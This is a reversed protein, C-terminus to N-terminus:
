GNSHESMMKKLLRDFRAGAIQVTDLVFGDLEGEQERGELLGVEEDFEAARGGRLRQSLFTALARYFRMGFGLDEEVRKRLEAHPLLLAYCHELATVTASPPRSDVLSMEGLVEGSGLVDVEGLGEVSVSVHGELLIYFHDNPQGEEIMTSGQLFKRREGREILWELDDDNLQGLIFLITQM